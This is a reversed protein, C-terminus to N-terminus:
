HRLCFVVRSLILLAIGINQVFYLSFCFWVTVSGHKLIMVVIYFKLRSYTSIIMFLLIVLKSPKIQVYIILSSVVISPNQM